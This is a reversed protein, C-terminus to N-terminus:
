WEKLFSRASQIAEASAPWAIAGDDNRRPEVDCYDAEPERQRKASTAPGSQTAKRKMVLLPQVRCAGSIIPRTALINVGKLCRTVARM